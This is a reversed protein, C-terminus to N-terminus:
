EQVNNEELIEQYCYRALKYCPLYVDNQKATSNSMTTIIVVGDGTEPEFSAYSLVGYANGTHYYLNRGEFQGNFHKLILCQSKQSLGVYEEYIESVTDPSLYYNNRYQGNQSLICLLRAYDKASITLDGAYLCNNDGPTEFYPRKIQAKRSFVVQNGRYLTAISDQARVKAAHLSADVGLVDFYYENVYDVLTMDCVKELVAGALCVASNNYKWASSVGPKKDMYSASRSVKNKMWNVDTGKVGFDTFSSTHTLLMRMTIPTNPYKPNRVKYGLYSGIDEDMDLIGQEEMSLAAMMVVVKTLSAVRIKTDSNMLLGSNKDAYGYEYTAYLDGGSIVAATVGMCEYGRCLSDLKESHKTQALSIIDSDSVAESDWLHRRGDFRVASEAIWGTKSLSRVRLWEGRQELVTVHEGRKVNRLTASQPDPKELLTCGLVCKGSQWGQWTFIHETAELPEDLSIAKPLVVSSIQEIIWDEWPVNFITLACLSSACVLVIVAIFVLCNRITRLTKGAPTHGAKKHAHKHRRSNGPRRKQDNEWFNPSEEFM